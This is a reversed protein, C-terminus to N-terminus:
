EGGKKVAKRLKVGGVLQLRIVEESDSIESENPTNNQFDSFGRAIDNYLQAPIDPHARTIRLVEALHHALAELEKDSNQKTSTKEATAM